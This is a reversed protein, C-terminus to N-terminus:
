GYGTYYGPAYIQHRYWPRRPLGEPQLLARDAAILIQDLAKRKDLSLPPAHQEAEAYKAASSKLRGLANQLPAFNVYPVPSKPSPAVYRIHPDSALEFSR